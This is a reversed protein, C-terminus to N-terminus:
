LTKKYDEFTEYKKSELSFPLDEHDVVVERGANFADEASRAFLDFIKDASEEVGHTDPVLYPFSTMSGWIHKRLIELIQEKM